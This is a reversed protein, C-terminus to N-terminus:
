YKLKPRQPADYQLADLLGDVHTTTGTGGQTALGPPKAIVLAHKDRHIVLSQAYSIQDDSLPARERLPARARAIAPAAAPAEPEPDPFTLVQGIAVRDGPSTKAGDLRLAGTRAWRSVLNFSADPAHRKFWRDLRIGDDDEAITASRSM